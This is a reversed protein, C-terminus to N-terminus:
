HTNSVDARPTAGKLAKQILLEFQASNKIGTVMLGNIIFTPTGRVGLEAFAQQQEHVVSRESQPDNLCARFTTRNLGIASAHEILANDLEEAQAWSKISTFLQDLMEYSHDGACSAAVAGRMAATSTPYHRFIFRVQGNEIHQARVSPLVERHFRVCYDCTLSGYEIVTVPAQAEGLAIEAHTFTSFVSAMLLSGMLAATYGNFLQKKM